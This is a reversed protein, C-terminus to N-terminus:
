LSDFKSLEESIKIHTCAKMKYFLLNHGSLSHSKGLTSWSIPSLLPVLVWAEQLGDTGDSGNSRVGRSGTPPSFTSPCSERKSDGGRPTLTTTLGSGPILFLEQVERGRDRGEM